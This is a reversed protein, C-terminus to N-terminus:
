AKLIRAQILSSLKTMQRLGFILYFLNEEKIYALEFGLINLKRIHIILSHKKFLLIQQFLKSSIIILSRFSKRLVTLLLSIKRVNQLFKCKNEPLNYIVVSCLTHNTLM